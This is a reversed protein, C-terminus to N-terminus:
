PMEVIEGGAVTGLSYYTQLDIDDNLFRVSGDAISFNVGGPHFSSMPLYNYNIDPTKRPITTNPSCALVKSAYLGKSSGGGGFIWGRVEGPPQSLWGTSTDTDIVVFEGMALTQSLGDSVESIRRAYGWGFMGGFVSGQRPIDGAGASELDTSAVAKTDPFAGAVGQYLTIAADKWLNSSDEYDIEYPWSPCVYCAIKEHRMTEYCTNTAGTMDLQDYISELELYPLMLSFLGHEWIGPSGPPFQDKWSSAYNHIALGMQKLNNTCQMRRAAERAAQVAPLLMAILIGIIAIVVLLEVLTFGKARMRMFNVMRDM